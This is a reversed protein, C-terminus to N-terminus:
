EPRDHKIRASEEVPCDIGDAVCPRERHLMIEYCTKGLVTEFDFGVRGLFSNNAQVIRYTRPDIVVLNDTIGNIIKERFQSASRLEREVQKMHSIDTAIGISGLFTGNVMFPAASVLSMLSSGDKRKLSLEYCDSLGNRRRHMQNQVLEQDKEDIMFDFVSGGIIECAEYGLMETLFGTPM